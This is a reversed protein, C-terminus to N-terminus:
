QVLSPFLDFLGFRALDGELEAAEARLAALDNRVLASRTREASSEIRRLSRGLGRKEDEEPAENSCLFCFATLLVQEIRESRELILGVAEKAHWREDEDDSSAAGLSILRDEADELFSDTAILARQITKTAQITTTNRHLTDPWPMENHSIENDGDRQFLELQFARSRVANVSDLLQGLLSRCSSLPHFGSKYSDVSKVLSSKVSQSRDFALLYVSLELLKECVASCIHYDECSAEGHSVRDRIRPGGPLEFLDIALNMCGDGLVARLKNPSSQNSGEVAGALMTRMDLYKEGRGATLARKPPLQNAAIFVTRLQEEILPLLTVCLELTNDTNKLSKWGPLSSASVVGEAASGALEALGRLGVDYCTLEANDDSRSCFFGHIATRRSPTVIAPSVRKACETFVILLLAAFNGGPEKFDGEHAFGHWCINRLNLSDVGGLLVQLASALPGLVAILPEAVLVDKMLFPVLAESLGGLAKLADKLWRELTATILLLSALGRGGLLLDFALGLVARTTKDLTDSAVDHLFISEFEVWSAVRAVRSRCQGALQRIRAAHDPSLPLDTRLEKLAEVINDDTEFDLGTGDCADLIESPSGLLLSAVHPSFSSGLGPERGDIEM